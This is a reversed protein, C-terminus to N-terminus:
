SLTMAGKAGRLVVSPLAGRCEPCCCLAARIEHKLAYERAKGQRPNDVVDHLQTQKSHAPLARSLQPSLATPAM